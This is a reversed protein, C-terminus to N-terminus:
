RRSGGRAPKGQENLETLTALCQSKALLLPIMPWSGNQDRVQAPHISRQDALSEVERIQDNVQKLVDLTQKRLANPSVDM